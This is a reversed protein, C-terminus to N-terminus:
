NLIEKVKKLVWSSTKYSEIWNINVFILQEGNNIWRISYRPQLMINWDHIKINDTVYKPVIWNINTFWVLLYWDKALREALWKEQKSNLLWKINCIWFNGSNDSYTINVIKNEIDIDITQEQTNAVFITCDQVWWEIRQTETM